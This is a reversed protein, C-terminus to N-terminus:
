DSEYYCDQECRNNTGSPCTCSWGVLTMALGSGTFCGCFARTCYTCGGGGDGFNITFDPNFSLDQTFVTAPFLLLSLASVLLVLTVLRRPKIKM